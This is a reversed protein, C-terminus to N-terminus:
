RLEFCKGTAPMTQVSIRNIFATSNEHQITMNSPKNLQEELEKLKQNLRNLHIENFDEEDRTQKLVETLRTLKMQVQNFHEISHAVLMGRTEAALQQIKRISEEEWRDIEQALPHRHPDTTQELMTQHLLNREDEIQDLQQVLLQRHEGLHNYCFNQSCGECKYAVKEKGCTICSIKGTTIAVASAM